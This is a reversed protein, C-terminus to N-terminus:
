CDNNKKDKEEDSCSHNFHISPSIIKVSENENATESDTWQSEIARPEAISESTAIHPFIHAQSIAIAEEANLFSLFALVLIIKKM